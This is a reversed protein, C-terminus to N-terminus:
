YDGTRVRRQRVRAPAVQTPGSYRQAMAELEDEFDQKYTAAVDHNGRYKESRYDAYLELAERFPQPVQPVDADDDMEAPFKYYRQKFDYALDVPCSLYILEGYETWHAPVAQDQDEPNPHLDFFERHPLYTNEDFKFKVVNDSDILAGGITAQHDDQQAITYDGINLTGAFSAESFKFYRTNFILQQGRNLYRLIRSTSFSADKLDDQVASTLDSVTYAM